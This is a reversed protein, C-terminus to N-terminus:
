NAAQRSNTHHLEGRQDEEVTQGTRGEWQDRQFPSDEQRWVDQHWVPLCGQFSFSWWLVNGNWQGMELECFFYHTPLQFQDTGKLQLLPILALIHNHTMHHKEYYRMPQIKQIWLWIHSLFHRRSTPIEPQFTGYAMHCGRKILMLYLNNKVSNILWKTKNKDGLQGQAKM